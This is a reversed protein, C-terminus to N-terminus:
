TCIKVGLKELQFLYRYDIPYCILGFPQRTVVGVVFNLMEDDVLGANKVLVGRILADPVFNEHKYLIMEGLWEFFGKRTRSHLMPYMRSDYRALSAAKVKYNKHTMLYLLQNYYNYFSVEVEPMNFAIYPLSEVRSISLDQTYFQSIDFNSDISFSSLDFVNGGEVPSSLTCSKDKIFTTFDASSQQLSM